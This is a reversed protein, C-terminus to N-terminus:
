ADPKEAKRRFEFLAGNLTVAVTYAAYTFRGRRTTGIKLPDFRDRKRIDQIERESSQLKDCLPVIKEDDFSDVHINHAFRNRIRAILIGDNHIESNILNRARAFDLRAGVTSLPGTNTFLKEKLKSNMGPLDQELVRQLYDEIYAGCVIALVRDPEKQARSLALM